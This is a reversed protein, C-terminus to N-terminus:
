WILKILYLYIASILGCVPLTLGWAILMNKVVIINLGIKSTTGAGMISGSVAHTTSLPIGLKAGIFLLTASSIEAAFGSAPKLKAVRTSLTKIIRIGGAMTGLAMCIACLLIVWDPVTVTNIIHFNFLTLTIIGM